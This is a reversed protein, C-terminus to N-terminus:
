KETKANWLAITSGIFFVVLLLNLYGGMIIVWAKGTLLKGIVGQLLFLLLPFFLIMWRPYLTKKKWVQIIFVLSCIAFLPYVFWRIAGNIEWSLRTAEVIDLNNQVALKATAGISVYAGHVVGYAIFIGGLCFMLIKRMIPKSPQFAFNVQGLGLVYFWAGVLATVGSIILRSDSAHAINQLLDTSEADYYFLMDGIVLIIGGLIGFIGSTRQWTQNM